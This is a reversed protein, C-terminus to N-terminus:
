NKKTIITSFYSNKFDLLTVLGILNLMEKFFHCANLTKIKFLNTGYIGIQYYKLMQKFILLDIIYEVQKLREEDIGEAFVESISPRKGM